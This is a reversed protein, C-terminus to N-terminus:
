VRFEKPPSIFGSLGLSKIWEVFSVVFDDPFICKHGPQQCCINRGRSQRFQRPITPGSGGYYAYETALLVRPAQTDHRINARNSRSDPHSHHSNEQLWKGTKSNRHYINDGYAQKLSGKLNPKKQSFRPDSWYQDFTLTESVKMAYVLKGQLGYRKSGTGIVWDGITARKRILPKCTALTCIGFFPNPAFGYDRAVVYSYIRM